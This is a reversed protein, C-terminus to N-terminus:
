DEKALVYQIKGPKEFEIEVISLLASYVKTRRLLGSYCSNTSQLVKNSYRKKM